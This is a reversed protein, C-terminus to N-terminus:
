KARFNQNIEGIIYEIKDKIGVTYRYDVLSLQFPIEFWTMQFAWDTVHNPRCM